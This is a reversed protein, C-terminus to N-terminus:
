RIPTGAHLVLAGAAAGARSAALSARRERAQGRRAGPPRRSLRVRRSQPDPVARCPVCHWGIAVLAASGPPGAARRGGLRGRRVSVLLGPGLVLESDWTMVHHYGRPLLWSLLWNNATRVSLQTSTVGRESCGADFLLILALISSLPSAQPERSTGLARTSAVPRVRHARALAGAVILPHPM